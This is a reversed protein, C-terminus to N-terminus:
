FNSIEPNESESILKKCIDKYIIPKSGLYALNPIVKSFEFNQPQRVRFNTKQM